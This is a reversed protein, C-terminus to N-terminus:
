VLFLVSCDNHASKLESVVALINELNDVANNTTIEYGAPCYSSNCVLLSPVGNKIIVKVYEDFINNGDNFSRLAVTYQRDLGETLTKEIDMIHTQESYLQKLTETQSTDGIAANAAIATALDFNVATLLNFLKSTAM